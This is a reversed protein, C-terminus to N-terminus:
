GRRRLRCQAGRRRHVGLAGGRGEQGCGGQGRRQPGDRVARRRGRCDAAEARGRAGRRRRDRLAGHAPRRDRGLDLGRRPRDAAAAGARRAACHERRARRAGGRGRRGARAAVRRAGQGRRGPAGAGRGARAARRARGRPGAARRAQGRRGKRRGRSRRACGKGSRAAGRGRRDGEKGRGRAGRGRGHRCLAGGPPGGRLRHPGQAGQRQGKGHRVDGHRVGQPRDRAEGKRGVPRAEDRGAAHVRRVQIDQQGGPSGEARQVRTDRARAGQARVARPERAKHREGPVVGEQGPRDARRGEQAPAKDRVPRRRGRLAAQRQGVAQGAFPAVRAEALRARVPRVRRGDTDFVQGVRRGGRVANDRELVRHAGRPPQPHKGARPGQPDSRPCGTKRRM